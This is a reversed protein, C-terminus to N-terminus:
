AERGHKADNGGSGGAFLEGSSAWASACFFWNRAIIAWSSRLGKAGIRLASCMRLIDPTSAAVTWRAVHHFPLKVMEHPEDVVQEVHRADDAALDLQLALRSFQHGHEAAGGLHRLGRDVGLAVLKDQRQRRAGDHQFATRSKWGSIM